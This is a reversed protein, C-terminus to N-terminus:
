GWQVHPGTKGSCRRSSSVLITYFASSRHTWQEHAGSKIIMNLIQWVIYTKSQDSMLHNWRPPRGVFSGSYKSPNEKYSLRSAVQLRVVRMLFHRDTSSTVLTKTFCVADSRNESFLFNVVFFFCAPNKNKFLFPPFTVLSLPPCWCGSFRFFLSPPDIAIDSVCRSISHVIHDRKKAM